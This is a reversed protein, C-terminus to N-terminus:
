GLYDYFNLTNINKCQGHEILEKRKKKKKKKSVLSM